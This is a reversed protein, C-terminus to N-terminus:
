PPATAPVPETRVAIGIAGLSRGRVTTAALDFRRVDFGTRAAANVLADDPVARHQVRVSRRIFDPTVDIVGAVRQLEKDM